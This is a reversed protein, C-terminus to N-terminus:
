SEGGKGEGLFVELGRKSASVYAAEVSEVLPKEGRWFPFKGLRRVVAAEVPPTEVEGFLDGVPSGEWFLAPSTPLGERPLAAPEAEAPAQGRAHSGLKAVLAERELGRLRFLL